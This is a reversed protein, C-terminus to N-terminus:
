NILSVVIIYFVIFLIRSLSEGHNCEQYCLKTEGHAIIIVLDKISL